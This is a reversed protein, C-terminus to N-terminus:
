IVGRRIGHYLYQQIYGALNGWKMRAFEAIKSESVKRKRFYLKRMARAIWVDVPFAEYQRFGFLLACDAVKEGVGDLELLKSKAGEYDSQDVQSFFHPNEAIRRATKLLFPARYGLGLQRLERESSRAIKDPAPFRLHVGSFFQLLNRWILQIRKINNNSSIIFSALADWPNQRIIRLGRFKQPLQRLNQDEELVRYIPKLDRNLDFYDRIVEKSIRGSFPRVYFGGPTERLEVERDLLIGRYRGKATNMFGFVQGSELTASLNFERAEIRM